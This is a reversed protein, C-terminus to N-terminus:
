KVGESEKVPAWLSLMKLVKRENVWWEVTIAPRQWSKLRSRWAKQDAKADALTHRIPGREGDRGDEVCFDYCGEPLIRRAM